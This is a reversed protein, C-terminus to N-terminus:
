VWHTLGWIKLNFIKHLYNHYTKDTYCEDKTLNFIKLSKRVSETDMFHGKKPLKQTRVWAGIKSFNEGSITIECFCVFKSYDKFIKFKWPFSIGLTQKNIGVKVEGRSGRSGGSSSWFWPFYFFFWLHLMGQWPAM